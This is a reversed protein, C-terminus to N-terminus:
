SKSTAGAGDPGDNQQSARFHSESSDWACKPEERPTDKAGQGDSKQESQVISIFLFTYGLVVKFKNVGAKKKSSM